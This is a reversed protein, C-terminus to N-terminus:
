DTINEKLRRDSFSGFAAQSAGNANIQGCGSNYQNIGFMMFVQSTTTNNDYKSLAIGPKGLGTTDQQAYIVGTVSGSAGKAHLPAAPASINMGVNGTSANVVLAEKSLTQSYIAFNDNTQCNLDWDHADNKLRLSASSNTGAQITMATSSASEIHFLSDNSTTGIMLNGSRDLRMRETLTGSVEAANDATTLFKLGVGGASGDRVSEIRSGKAEGERLFDIGSSFNSSGDLDSEITITTNTNDSDVLLSDFSTLNSTVKTLAM